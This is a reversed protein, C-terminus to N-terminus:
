IFRADLFGVDLTCTEMAGRGCCRPSAAGRAKLLDALVIHFADDGLRRWDVRIRGIDVGADLTPVSERPLCVLRVRGRSARSRSPRQRVPDADNGIEPGFRPKGSQHGDTGRASKKGIWGLGEQHVPSPSVKPVRRLPRAHRVQQRRRITEALACIRVRSRAHRTGM